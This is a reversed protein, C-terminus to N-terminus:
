GKIDASDIYALVLVAKNSLFSFVEGTARNKFVPHWILSISIIKRSIGQSNYFFGCEDMQCKTLSGRLSKASSLQLFPGRNEHHFQLMM